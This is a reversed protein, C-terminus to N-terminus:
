PVLVLALAKHVAPTLRPNFVMPFVAVEIDRKKCAFVSREMREAESNGGESACSWGSAELM